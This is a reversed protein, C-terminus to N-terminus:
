WFSGKQLIGTTWFVIFGLVLFPYLGLLLSVGREQWSGRLVIRLLAVLTTIALLASLLIPYPSIRNASSPSIILPPLGSGMLTWIILLLSAFAAVLWRANSHLQAGMNM